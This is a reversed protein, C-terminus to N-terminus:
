VQKEELIGQNETLEGINEEVYKEHDLVSIGGDVADVMIYYEREDVDQCTVIYFKKYFHDEEIVSMEPSILLKSKGIFQKLTFDHGINYCEEMITEVNLAEEEPISVEQFEPEGRTEYVSGSVRDIICDSLKNAKRVMKGKGALIEYRFRVYPYYVDEVDRIDLSADTNLLLVLAQRTNYGCKLLKIDVM